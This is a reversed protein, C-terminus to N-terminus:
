LEVGGFESVKYRGLEFLVAAAKAVKATKYYHEDMHVGDKVFTVTWSWDEVKIGNRKVEAWEKTVTAVRMQQEGKSMNIIYPSDGSIDVAGVTIKL